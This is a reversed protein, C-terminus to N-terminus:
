EACLVSEPSPALGLSFRWSDIAPSPRTTNTELSVYWVTNAVAEHAIRWMGEFRYLQLQADKQFVPLGDSLKDPVLTYNGNVTENGAGVVAFTKCSLPAPPPTPPVPEPTESFYVQRRMINRQLVFYMYLTDNGALVYSAGEGTNPM